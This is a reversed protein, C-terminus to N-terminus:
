AGELCEALKKPTIGLVENSRFARCAASGDQARQDDLRNLLKSDNIRSRLYLGYYHLIRSLIRRM